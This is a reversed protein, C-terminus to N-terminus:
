LQLRRRYLYYAATLGNSQVILLMSAHGLIFHAGHLFSPGWRDNLMNWSSQALPKFDSSAGISTAMMDFEGLLSLLQLHPQSPPLATTEDPQGSVKGVENLDLVRGEIM